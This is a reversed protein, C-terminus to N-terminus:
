FRIGLGLIFSNVVGDSYYGNSLYSFEYGGTIFYKNKIRYLLGAGGGGYFGSDNATVKGASNSTRATYNSFQVGAMLNVYAKFIEGKGLLLKPAYYVPVSTGEYDATVEAPNGSVQETYASSGSLSFYGVGVGHAFLSQTKSFEYLGSLRWGAAKADRDKLTASSSGGAISILNEGAFATCSFLVPAISFINKHNM